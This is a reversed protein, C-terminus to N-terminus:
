DEVTVIAKFTTDNGLFLLINTSFRRNKYGRRCLLRQTLVTAFMKASNEVVTGSGQGIALLPTFPNQL